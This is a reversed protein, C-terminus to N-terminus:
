QMCKVIEGLQQNFVTLYESFRQNESNINELITKGLIETKQSEDMYDYLLDTSKIEQKELFKNM